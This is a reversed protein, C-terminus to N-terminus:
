NWVVIVNKALDNSIAMVQNYVLLEIGSGTKSVVRVPTREIIGLTMLRLVNNNEINIAYVTAVKNLELDLLTKM